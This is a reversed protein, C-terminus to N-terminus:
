SYDTALIVNMRAEAAARKVPDESFSVPMNKNKRLERTKWNKWAVDLALDGVFVIEEDTVTPEFQCFHCCFPNHQWKRPLSNLWESREKEDEPVKAGEPIDPVEVYHENYGEDEEDLYLDFRVQCLGKRVSCGTKNVKFFM